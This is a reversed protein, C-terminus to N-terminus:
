RTAERTSPQAAEAPELTPDRELGDIGRDDEPRPSAAHRRAPPVISGALPSLSRLAVDLASMPAPMSLWALDQFEPLSHRQDHASFVLIPVNRARLGRALVVCSGSQLDVDLVAIDPTASKLWELATACAFPGVVGYGQRELEDALDLGIIASSEVLLVTSSTFTTSQGM